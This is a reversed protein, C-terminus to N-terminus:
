DDNIVEASVKKLFEEDVPIIYVNYGKTDDCYLSVAVFKGDNRVVVSKIRQDFRYDKEIDMGRSILTLTNEKRATTAFFRHKGDLSLNPPLDTFLALRREGDPWGLEEVRTSLRDRELIQYFVYLGSDGWSLSVVSAYLGIPRSLQTTKGTEMEAVFAQYRFNEEDDINKNKGFNVMPLSLFAVYKGDPSAVPKTPRARLDKFELSIVKGKELYVTGGAENLAFIRDNGAYSPFNGDKLAVIEKEEPYNIDSFDVEVIKRDLPLATEDISKEDRSVQRLLIIKDLTPHFRMQGDEFNGKTLRIAEGIKEAPEGSLLDVCSFLMPSMLLVFAIKLVCYKKALGLFFSSM